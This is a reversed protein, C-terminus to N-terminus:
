FINNKHVKYQPFGLESIWEAVKEPSWKLYEFKLEIRKAPQTEKDILKELEPPLDVVENKSVSERLEKQSEAPYLDNSTDTLEYLKPPEESFEYAMNISDLEKVTLSGLMSDKTVKETEKVLM